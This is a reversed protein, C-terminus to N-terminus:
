SGDEMPDPAANGQDARAARRERTQIRAVEALTWALAEIRMGDAVAPEPTTGLWAWLEDSGDVMRRLRELRQRGWSDRRRGVAATGNLWARIATLDSDARLQDALTRLVGLQAPNAGPPVLQARCQPQAARAAISRRLEQRWLRELMEEVDSRVARHVTPQHLLAPQLMVRGFGEPTREGLGDTEVAVWADRDFKGTVAFRLVSGARLGVLSPRPKTWRTQWSEVRSSGSYAAALPSSPAAVVSVGLREGLVSALREVSPDPEGWDGRLLVDSLLWVVLQGTAEAQGIREGLGDEPAAPPCVEVSVQGYDDKRSRGLSHEGHLVRSDLSVEGPLWIQARLVTGAAMAQYIFLGGTAENPRQQADDIVAHTQETLRPRDMRLYGGAYTCFGSAMLPKHQPTTVPHLVNTLATGTSDKDSLLVRPAPESRQGNIEVTANTVVIRGATIVETASTGLARAVVPLLMTGPIFQETLVVNGRVRQMAMLPTLATIRLEHRLVLREQGRAGLVAPAAAASVNSPPVADAVRGLLEALRTDSRSGPIAIHVRCRGAGRRRKGGIAEVLESAALLLLEAEWPVAQGDELHAFHVLWRGAVTLGARAREEVRLMDDDAVGSAPDVRIGSRLVVTADDIGAIDQRGRIAARLAAPLRLPRAQLASGVPAGPTPAGATPTGPAVAPQSGFVAEVWDRWVHGDGEDLGEAVTEAADRLMAALAKGRLMPFGDTDRQVQRDVAGHRGTGTGCMWDSDFRVSVTFARGNRLGGASV